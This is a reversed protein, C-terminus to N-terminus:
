PQIAIGHVFNNQGVGNTIYPYWNTPPYVPSYVGAGAGSSCYVQSGWSGVCVRGQDGWGYLQTFTRQAGKCNGWPGLTGTCYGSSSAQATATGGLLALPLILLIASLLLVARGKRLVATSM